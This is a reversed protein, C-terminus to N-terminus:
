VQYAHIFLRGDGGKGGNKGQFFLSGGGGGGSGPGGDGGVPDTLNLDGGYLGGLGGIYDDDFYSHIGSSDGATATGGNSATAGLAVFGVTTCTTNSGNGSNIAGGTGVVGVLTGGVPVDVGVTLAVDNWAGARGGAGGSTSGGKDGGRGGGLGTLRIKDGNRLWSPLTWSWSGALFRGWYHRKDTFTVRAYGPGGVRGSGDVPTGQIQGSGGGGGAGYGRGAAGGGAGGSPKGAEPVPDPSLYPGGAKFLSDSGATGPTYSVNKNSDTRATRGQGGGAAGGLTNPGLSGPASFGYGIGSISPTGAASNTGAGANLQVSGSVFSSATGPSGVIVSFLPGLDEIPIFFRLGATGIAAAGGGGDGGAAVVNNQSPMVAGAKGPGGGGALEVIAGAAETPTEADTLNTNEIIYPFSIPPWIRDSGLYVADQLENGVYISAADGGIYIPM